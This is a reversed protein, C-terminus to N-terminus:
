AKGNQIEAIVERSIRESYSNIKWHGPSWGKLFRHFDAWAVPFLKRWNAELLGFNMEPRKVQIAKNLESFYFDQIRTEMNECEEEVLCSGIFYALDKMGCGAGVYQFDVVAVNNGSNSFCFNALKADGHVLTQYPSDKLIQDIQSAVNKLPIDDLVELEEPRTELHWYTGTEWLGEPKFGMFAAHFNALWSLCPIMEDWDLHSKRIPFGSSDLDEMILLVEEGRTEIALCEPIRCSEDCHQSYKQYWATEVQYSRVKRNHSLSTNWGRPHSTSKGFQVHKVVISKVSGGQLELRLIQGYNSWLNQIVEQRIIREAGTREKIVSLFYENM